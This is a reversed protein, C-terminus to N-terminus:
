GANPFLSEWQEKLKMNAVNTEVATYLINTAPNVEDKGKQLGADEEDSAQESPRSEEVAISTAAANIIGLEELEELTEGVHKSISPQEDPFRRSCFEECLGEIEDRTLGSQASLPSSDNQGARMLLEKTKQEASEDLLFRLVDFGSALTKDKLTQSVFLQYRDYVRKYGSVVRFIIAALSIIKVGDAIIAQIDTLDALKTSLSAGILAIISVLDLRLADLPRITLKSSPFVVKIDAIPIQEYVRLRTVHRRNNNNNSSSSSSTATSGPSPAARKPVTAGEEANRTTAADPKPQHRRPAQDEIEERYTVIVQQYTPEQLRARRFITSLIGPALVDAVATRSLFRTRNELKKHRLLGQGQEKEAGVQLLLDGGGGGGRGPGEEEEEPALADLSYNLPSVLGLASLYRRLLRARPGSSFVAEYRPKNQFEITNKSSEWPAPSSTFFPDSVNSLIWGELREILRLGLSKRPSPPPPSPLSSTSLPSSSSSSNRSQLPLSEDDDIEIKKKTSATTTASEARSQPQQKANSNNFIPRGDAGTRSGSIIRNTNRYPKNGKGGASIAEKLKADRYKYYLWLLGRGPALLPEAMLKIAWRFFQAQLYDLKEGFLRGEESVTSYGRRYVAVDSVSNFNDLDVPLSELYYDANLASALELDRSEVREFRAEALLRKTSSLVMWGASEVNVKDQAPHHKNMMGDDDSGSKSGSSSSSDKSSSRGHVSITDQHQQRGLLRPPLLSAAPTGRTNNIVKEIIDKSRRNDLVGKVASRIKRQVRAPTGRVMMRQPPVYRPFLRQRIRGTQNQKRKGGGADMGMMAMAGKLWKPQFRKLKSLLWSSVTELFVSSKKPRQSRRRGAKKVSRAGSSAHHGGLNTEYDKRLQEMTALKRAHMVSSLSRSLQTLEQVTAEISKNTKAEDNGKVNALLESNRKGQIFSALEYALAQKDMPLSASREVPFRTESNMLLGGWRGGQKEGAGSGEPEDSKSDYINTTSNTTAVLPPCLVEPAHIEVDDQNESTAPFLASATIEKPHLFISPSEAGNANDCSAAVPAGWCFWFLKKNM